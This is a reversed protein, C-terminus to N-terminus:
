GKIRRLGALVTEFVPLSSGWREAPATLSVTFEPEEPEGVALTISRYSHGNEQFNYEWLAARWGRWQTGHLRLQQYTENRRVLQTEAAAMYRLPSVGSFDSTDVSLSVPQSPHSYLFQKGSNKVQGRWGDPVPIALGRDAEDDVHYGRPLRVSPEPPAPRKASEMGPAIAASPATSAQGAHAGGGVRSAAYVGCISLLSLTIASAVWRASRQKRRFASSVHTAAARADDHLKKESRRTQEPVLDTVLGVPSTVDDASTQLLRETETASLRQDPDRVLLGSIVPRLPGAKSASPVEVTAIAYATEIATDRRFPFRGEVTQFLTVGLAWLDAEPGPAGGTLREPSLFDVSGVIEGTRTLTSTGSVQAIGFDTLIVRGNKSLLVNDPKVDRHLVGADHAARLAAIMGRGIRRAEAPPLSGRNRLVEGLTMSEVYEMVITPLGEDDVVDHVGVVNPHNIRAASRAERRTREFLRAVEDDALHHQPHLKKVAVPRGLLEDHARWVTGMGGSGIREVLRYRGAVLRGQDSM